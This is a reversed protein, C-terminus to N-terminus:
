PALLTTGSPLGDSNRTAAIYVLKGRYAWQRQGQVPVITWRGIPRNAAGALLPLRDSCGTGCSGPKGTKATFLLNGQWDTLHYDGDVLALHVSPPAPQEAPRPPVYSIAFWGDAYEHGNIDGRKHDDRYTYVPSNGYAWQPGKLGEVVRWAGVPRADAPAAYPQWLEACASVCFLAPDRLGRRRTLLPTLQYLTKGNAGVLIRGMKSDIVGVGEPLGKDADPPPVFPAPILAKPPLVRDQSGVNIRKADRALDAAPIPPPASAAAARGPTGPPVPATAHSAAPASSGGAAAQALAPPGIGAAAAAVSVLIAVRERM